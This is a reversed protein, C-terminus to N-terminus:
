TGWSGSPVLVGPYIDYQYDGMNLIPKSGDRAILDLVRREYSNFNESYDLGKMAKWRWTLGLALIQEDLLSVDTDATFASKKATLGADTAWGSTIYEFYCNDGAAPVPIFKLNGGVIRFQYWPGTIFMSKQEQWYQPSLPGFIPRRTKRDWITDNIIFKLNPAITAIAGQTETAVTTFSAELTLAQWNYRAALEQGEENLLALLQLVQTDNSTAVANPTTLGLKQAVSQVISLCSM